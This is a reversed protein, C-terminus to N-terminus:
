NCLKQKPCLILYSRIIILLCENKFHLVQLGRLTINLIFAHIFLNRGGDM